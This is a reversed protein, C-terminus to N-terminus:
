PMKRYNGKLKGNERNVLEWGIEKEVKGKHLRHQQQMIIAM